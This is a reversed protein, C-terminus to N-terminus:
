PKDTKTSDAKEGKEQPRKWTTMRTVIEAIVTDFKQLQAPTCLTKVRQFHHFTLLDLKRQLVTVEDGKATLLSDSVNAPPQKLLNFFNRKAIRMSDMVVRQQSVLTDRMQWYRAEQDKDFKLENVMFQGMRKERSTNNQQKRPKDAFWIFSLTIINTLLLIVVLVTLWRQRPFRQMNM